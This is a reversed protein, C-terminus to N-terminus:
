GQAEVSSIDPGGLCSSSSINEQKEQKGRDCNSVQVSLDYAQMGKKTAPVMLEKKRSLFGKERGM